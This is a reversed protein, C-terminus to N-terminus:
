RRAHRFQVSALAVGRADPYALVAGDTTTRLGRTAGELDLIGSLRERKPQLADFGAGAPVASDERVAVAQRALAAQLRSAKPLWHQREAVRLERELAPDVEGLPRASAVLVIAERGPTTDLPYGEEANPLRVTREAAVEETPLLVDVSGSSGVHLVQLYARQLVRLEVQVLDDVRLVTAAQVLTRQASPPRQALVRLSALPLPEGVAGATGAILLMLLICVVRRM